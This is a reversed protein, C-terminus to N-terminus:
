KNYLHIIILIIAVWMMCSVAMVIIYGISRDNLKM